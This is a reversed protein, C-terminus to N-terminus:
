QCHTDPAGGGFVQFLGDKLKATYFMGANATAKHCLFSLCVYMQLLNREGWCYFVFQLQDSTTIKSRADNLWDYLKSMAVTFQLHETNSKWGCGVVPQAHTHEARESVHVDVTSMYRFFGFVCKKKQDVRGFFFAMTRLWTHVYVNVHVPIDAVVTKEPIVAKVTVTPTQTNSPQLHFICISSYKELM